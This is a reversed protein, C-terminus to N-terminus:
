KQEGSYLEAQLQGALGGAVLTGSSMATVVAKMPGACDGAAFVGPISTSYFPETTKIDGDSSLHLGLQEAFPGNIETKPKHVLFGEMRQTGDEFAVEVDSKGQGKVLRAIPRSDVRIGTGDSAKELAQTLEQAGHTYITVTTAFRRAMRAVHMAPMVNAMDGIALVAATECGREEFGHCFLCHFIGLAWCEGYGAIDPFIDRVGNALVLKKGKWVREKSDIATFSGEANREVKKIEANEFQITDYRQIRERAAQRFEEPSKHDWSAVNHMHSALANRYIGSDFVVARHLQRALGTAVSLGAPGGGIILVDFIAM